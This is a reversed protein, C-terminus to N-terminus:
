KVNRNSSDKDFFATFGRGEPRPIYPASANSLTETYVIQIVFVRSMFDLLCRTYEQLYWPTHHVLYRRLTSLSGISARNFSITNWTQWSPPASISSSSVMGSWTCTNTSHLGTNPILRNTPNIFPRLELSSLCSNGERFLRNGANHVCEHKMAVTPPAGKDIMLCYISLWFSTYHSELGELVAQVWGFGLFLLHKLDQVDATM